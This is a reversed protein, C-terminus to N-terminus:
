SSFGGWLDVDSRSPGKAIFCIDLGLDAEIARLLEEAPLNEHGIRRRCWLSGFRVQDIHGVVLSRSIRIEKTDFTGEQWDAYDRDLAERILPLDLCGFRLLGQHANPQNTRDEYRIEDETPFPGAGHRTMYPRLLYFVDLEGIGIRRAIDLVNTLGPRSRTVHPFFHHREDLLLGQAGEFIYHDFPMLWDENSTFGTTDGILLATADLFDDMLRGGRLASQVAESCDPMGHQLLRLPVWENAIRHLRAEFDGRRLDGVRLAYYPDATREITENIGVGCSGHRGTGRAFEIAQNILMDYPTTVPSDEDLYLPPWAGKARVQNSERGYLLPNVIFHRSLYTTAGAFTGSGLHSFVHRGGSPLVVTHGAQAGGNHRIVVTRKGEALARAALYDVMRGKGEDGFAAGIVVEARKM